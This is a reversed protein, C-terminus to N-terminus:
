TRPEVTDLLLRWQKAPLIILGCVYGKIVVALAGSGDPGDIFYADDWVVNTKPPEANWIDNLERVRARPVPRINKLDISETVRQTMMEVTMCGIPPHDPQQAYTAYSVSLLALIFAITGFVVFKDKNM